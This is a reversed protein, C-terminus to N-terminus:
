SRSDLSNVTKWRFLGRKRHRYRRVPGRIFAITPYPSTAAFVVWFPLELMRLGSDHSYSPLFTFLEDASWHLLEAVSAVNDDWWWGSPPFVPVDHDVALIYLNGFSVRVHSSVTNHGFMWPFSLPFAAASTVALLTLVVIIAKRIM